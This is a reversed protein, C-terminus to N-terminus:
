KPHVDVLALIIKFDNKNRMYGRCLDTESGFHQMKVKGRIAVAAQWRTAENPADYVCHKNM